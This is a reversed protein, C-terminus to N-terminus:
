MKILPNRDRIFYKIASLSWFTKSQSNLEKSIYLWNQISIFYVKGNPAIYKDTDTSKEIYSTSIRPGNTPCWQKWKNKSDIYRKFYEKNVFYENKNLNPSTFVWLQSNYQIKYEKCSRAIYVEDTTDLTINNQNKQDNWDLINQIDKIPQPIDTTWTNTIINENESPKVYLQLSTEYWNKDSIYIRYNWEKNFKILNKIIMSWFDNTTLRFGDDIYDDYDYVYAKTSYPVDIWKSIDYSYYQLKWFSIKWTYKTDTKINVWIWENTTPNKTNYLSISLNSSEPNSNNDSNPSDTRQAYLTIIDGDRDSLKSVYTWWNYHTWNGNSRTNWGDFTYGNRSPSSPLKVRESYDVTDSSISGNWWNLNYRITYSNEQWQAYYTTDNTIKERFTIEKWWTTRTYRWLFTYWKRTPEPPESVYDWDQVRRSPVSTWWNSDFYVTYTNPTTTWGWEWWGWGGGWWESNTEWKAYLTINKTVPSSFNYATTLSSNSYRWQFTYWNRTPNSPKTATKLEEITQPAPTPSWWNSNFTVIYTTPTPPDDPTPEDQRKAYLILDWTINSKFDYEKTM